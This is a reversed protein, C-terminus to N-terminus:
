VSTYHAIVKEVKDSENFFMVEVTSKGVAAVTYYLAISQVSVAVDVLEFRLDPIKKLAAEWYARIDKKGKLADAEISTSMRIMPTIIEFDDAYHDLIRDMDHSNWAEIWEETFAQIDKIM